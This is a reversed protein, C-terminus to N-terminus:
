RLVASDQQLGCGRLLRECLEGFREHGELVEDALLDSIRVSPHRLALGAAELKRDSTTSFSPTIQDFPTIRGGSTVRFSFALSLFSRATISRPSSVFRLHSRM